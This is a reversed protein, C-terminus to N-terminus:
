KRELSKEFEELIPPINTKMDTKAFEKIVASMIRERKSEETNLFFFRGKPMEMALKPYETQEHVKDTTSNFVLIERQIDKVLDYLHLNRAAYAAKKWKRVDANDVFEESRKKQNKEKMNGFLVFKFIPKLWNVFFAPILPSLNVLFKSFWLKHMPDFCLITPADLSKNLLGKLIITAGWCPGTLIFDTGSLELYDIVKQVDKANQDVSMDAIRINLRSSGKERTELYYFEFSDQLTEYLDYFGTHTVGWGPIFLIKRKNEINEPKVHFVRIEGDAIPIFIEETIKEDWYKPINKQTSDILEDIKKQQKETVTLYKQVDIQEENSKKAM